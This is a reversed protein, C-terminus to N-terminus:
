QIDRGFKYTCFKRTSTSSSSIRYQCITLKKRKFNKKLKKKIM